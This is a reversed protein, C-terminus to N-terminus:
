SRPRRDTIFPASFDMRRTKAREAGYTLLNTRSPNELYRKVADALVEDVTRQEAKAAYRIETL